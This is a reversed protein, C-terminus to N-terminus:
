NAPNQGVTEQLVPLDDPPPMRKVISEPVDGRGAQYISGSELVFCIMVTLLTPVVAVRTIAVMMIDGKSNGSTALMAMGLILASIAYGVLLIRTRNASLRWHAAVFWEGNSTEVGSRFWIFAIVSLSLLLPVLFGMFGIDLVISAPAAILHCAVLNVMSLEHPTKARKRISEDVDFIM